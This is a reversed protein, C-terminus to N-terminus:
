GACIFFFLIAIVANCLMALKFARLFGAKRGRHRGYAYFLCGLMGYDFANRAVRAADHRHFSAVDRPIFTKGTEVDRWRDPIEVSFSRGNEEVDEYHSELIEHRSPDYDNRSQHPRLFGTMVPIVIFLFWFIGVMLRHRKSSIILRANLIPQAAAADAVGIPQKVPPSAVIMIAVLLDIPIWSSRALHVPVFPNFLIAVLGMTVARLAFGNLSARWALIITATCIALRLFEYFGYPWRALAALLLAAIAIQLERGTLLTRM